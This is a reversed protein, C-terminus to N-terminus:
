PEPVLRVTFDQHFDFEDKASTAVQKKQKFSKYGM